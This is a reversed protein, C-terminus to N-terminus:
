HNGATVLRFPMQGKTCQNLPFHRWIIVKGIWLNKKTVIVSFFFTCWPGNFYEVGKFKKVKQWTVVSKLPQKLQSHILYVLVFTNTATFHFPFSLNQFSKWIFIWFTHSENTKVGENYLKYFWSESWSYTKHHKDRGAKCM